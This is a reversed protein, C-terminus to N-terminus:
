WYCYCYREGFIFRPNVSDLPHCDHVAIFGFDPLNGVYAYTATHLKALVGRLHAICSPMYLVM